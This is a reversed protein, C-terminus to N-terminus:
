GNLGGLRLLQKFNFSLRFFYREGVFIVKWNHWFKRTKKRKIQRQTLERINREKIGEKKKERQEQKFNVKRELKERQKFNEYRNRKDKEREREWVKM